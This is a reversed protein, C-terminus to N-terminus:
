RDIEIQIEKVDRISVISIITINSYNQFIERRSSLLPLKLIEKFVITVISKIISM